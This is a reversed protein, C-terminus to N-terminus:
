DLSTVHLHAISLQMNNNLEPLTLSNCNGDIIEEVDTNLECEGDEYKICTYGWVVNICRGCM